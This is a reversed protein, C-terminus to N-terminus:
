YVVTYPIPLLGQCFLGVGFSAARPARLLSLLRHLLAHSPRLTSIPTGVANLLRFKSLSQCQVCGTVHTFPPVIGFRRVALPLLLDGLFLRVRGGRQMRPPLLQGGAPPPMGLIFCERYFYQASPLLRQM